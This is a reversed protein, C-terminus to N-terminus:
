RSIPGPHNINSTRDEAALRQMDHRLEFRTEVAAYVVIGILFLGGGVAYAM